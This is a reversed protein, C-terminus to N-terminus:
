RAVTAVHAICPDGGSAPLYLPEPSGAYDRQYCIDVASPCDNDFASTGPSLLPPNQSWWNYRAHIQARTVVWLGVPNDCFANGAIEADPDPNPSAANPIYIGLSNGRFFNGIIRYPPSGGAVSSPLRIAESRGDIVANFSIAAIGTPEIGHGNGVLRNATFEGAGLISFENREIRGRRVSRSFVLGQPEFRYALDFRGTGSGAM